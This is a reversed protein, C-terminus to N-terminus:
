KREKLDFDVYRAAMQKYAGSEITEAIARNFRRRLSDNGKAVAVGVGNGLWIPAGVVGFGKGQPLNLFRTKAVLMSTFALDAQGSSLQSYAEVEKAVQVRKMEPYGQGVWTDRPSGKLVAVSKGTMAGGPLVSNVTGSRAVWASPVNYYSESFDVEQLRKETITLSAIAADLEGAKIRPILQDFDTKVLECRARMRECFAHALDIELGTVRGDAETKSFPPYGGEIGIRLPAVYNRWPWAALALGGLMALILFIPTLRRM